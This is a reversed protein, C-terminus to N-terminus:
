FRPIQKLYNKILQPIKSLNGNVPILYGKEKEKNAWSRIIKIENINKISLNTSYNDDIYIQNIDNEIIEFDAKRGIEYHKELLGSKIYFVSITKERNHEPSILIFSSRDMINLSNNSKKIYKKILEIKKKIIGAQEFKLNDSYSQMQKELKQLITKTDGDLFKRLAESEKIYQEKTMGKCPALCLLMEKYICDQIVDKENIKTNCKKLKFNLNVIDFLESALNQNPIPGFYEAKNDSIGRVLELKPFDENTLKLFHYQRYKKLVSNYKPIYRKIEESEYLLAHLESQLCIYKFDNVQTLMEFIKKSNVGSDQFYTSIRNKLNKSKGIYLPSGNKDYFYYVGPSEPILDIRNKFSRIKENQTSSYRNNRNQLILLEKLDMVGYDEEIIQLLEILAIATAKADGLASHRNIIPIKFHQALSSLNVKTGKPLIKKALKVTCLQQMQPFEIWHRSYNQRIFNYDFSVNHAVFVKNEGQFMPLIEKLVNESEPANRVMNNTIGTMRQIFDPIPKHPNLLTSYENTIKGNKVVVVAIDTIRDNINDSGTTEIDVVVFETKEIPIM